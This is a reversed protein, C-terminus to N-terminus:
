KMRDGRSLADLLLMEFTLAGTSRGCIHRVRLLVLGGLRHLDLCQYSIMEERKSDNRGSIHGVQPRRRSPVM